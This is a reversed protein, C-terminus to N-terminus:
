RRTSRGIGRAEVRRAHDLEGDACVDRTYQRCAIRYGRLSARTVGSLSTRAVGANRSPWGRLEPLDHQPAPVSDGSHGAGDTEAETREGASGSTTRLGRLACTSTVRDGSGAGRRAARGAKAGSGARPTPAPRLSLQHRLDRVRRAPWRWLHPTWGGSLLVVAPKAPM